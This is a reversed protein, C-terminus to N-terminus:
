TAKEVIMAPTNYRIKLDDAREIDQRIEPMNM